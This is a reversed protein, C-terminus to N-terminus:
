RTIEMKGSDKIEPRSPLSGLPARLRLVLFQPHWAHLLVWRLAVDAFADVSLAMEHVGCRGNRSVRNHKDDNGRYNMQESPTAKVAAMKTLPAVLASSLYRPRPRSFRLARRWPGM